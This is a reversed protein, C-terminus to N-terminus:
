ERLTTILDPSLNVAGKSTFSPVFAHKFSAFFRSSIFIINKLDLGLLLLAEREYEYGTGSIFWLFEAPKQGTSEIFQITMCVRPLLELLWHGYTPAQPEFIVVSPKTYHFYEKRSIDFLGAHLKTGFIDFSLEDFLDGSELGLAFIHGGSRQYEYSAVAM